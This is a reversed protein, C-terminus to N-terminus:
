YRGKKIYGLNVFMKYLGDKDIDDAVFNAHSKVEKRANGMAIGIGAYELMSIDNFGDGVAIMNSKPVHLVENFVKLGVDKLGVAQNVDLGFPNSFNFSLSPFIEEFKKYDPQDYFLVVQYIDKDLHHNKIVEPTPIHFLECFKSPLDTNQSQLCFHTDSEFGMDLNNKECYNILKQVLETKIPNKFITEGKYVVLSGNSAIYSDIGLKQDIGFFLSPPRGTAIILQHGENKLESIAHLTSPPVSNTKHDILTGDLDFFIYKKSM